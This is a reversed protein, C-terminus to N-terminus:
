DIESGCRTCVQCSTEPDETWNHDVYNHGGTQECATECWEQLDVSVVNEEGDLKNPPCAYVSDGTIGASPDRREEDVWMLRMDEATHQRGDVTWYPGSYVIEIRHDLDPM